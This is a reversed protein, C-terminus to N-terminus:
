LSDFRESSISVSALRANQMHNKLVDEGTDSEYSMAGFVWPLDNGELGPTHSGSGCLVPIFGSQDKDIRNNGTQRVGDVYLQVDLVNPTGDNEWTAAVHHWQGDVIDTSGVVFGGNVEVRLAGATGNDDQTRFIWKEGPSDQGWAVIGM